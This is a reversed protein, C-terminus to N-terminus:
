HDSVMAWGRKRPAPKATPEVTTEKLEKLEEVKEIKELEEDNEEIDERLFSEEPEDYEQELVNEIERVEPIVNIRIKNKSIKPSRPPKLISKTRLCESHEPNCILGPIDDDQYFVIPSPSREQDASYSSLNSNIVM